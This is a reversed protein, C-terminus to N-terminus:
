KNLFYTVYLSPDEQFLFICLCNKLLLLKEYNLVRESIVNDKFPTYYLTKMSSLVLFMPLHVRKKDDEKEGSEENM